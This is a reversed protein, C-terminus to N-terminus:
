EEKRIPGNNEINVEEKNNNYNNQYNVDGKEIGGYTQPTSNNDSNVKEMDQIYKDNGNVYSKSEPSSYKNVRDTVEKDTTAKSINQKLKYLPNKEAAVQQRKKNYDMLGQGRNGANFEKSREFNAVLYVESMSNDGKENFKGDANYQAPPENFTRKWLTKWTKIKDLRFLKWHPVKTKTDGYPQFARVVLNGAKSLGYAVPQIIRKGTGKPDDDAEYFIEAEKRQRIATSVNTINTSEVILEKIINELLNM